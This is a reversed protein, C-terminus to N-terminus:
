CDKRLRSKKDSYMGYCTVTAPSINLDGMQQGFLGDDKYKICPVATESEVQIIVLKMKEIGGHSCSWRTCLEFPTHETKIFCNEPKLDISFSSFILLLCIVLVFEYFSSSLFVAIHSTITVRVDM